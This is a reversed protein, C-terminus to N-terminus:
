YYWCQLRESQRSLLKLIVQIGSGIKKFSSVYIMGDSAMEVTYKVVVMLLLV